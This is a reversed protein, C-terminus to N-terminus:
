SKRGPTTTAHAHNQRRDHVVVEKPFANKDVGFFVSMKGSSYYGASQGGMQLSVGDENLFIVMTDNINM